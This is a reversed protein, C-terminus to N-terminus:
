YLIEDMAKEEVHLRRSTVIIEDRQMEQQVALMVLHTGCVGQMCVYPM